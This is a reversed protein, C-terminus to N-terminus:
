EVILVVLNRPGHVGEVRELEIDSTASPGSILTIPAGHLAVAEAVAGLGEPVGGHIQETRVVCIHHDPVLTLARRGCPGRGDLVLTGTEAIAAACGTLTAGLQDLEIPTLGRDEILEIGQPRWSPPLEPPVALQRVGWIACAAEVAGAIAAEGPIRLARAAYDNVRKELLAALEERPRPDARHYARPVSVGGPREGAPVDRLAGRV